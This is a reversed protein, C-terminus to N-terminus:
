LWGKKTITPKRNVMSWHEFWEGWEGRRHRYVCVKNDVSDELLRKLNSKLESYTNFSKQIVGARVDELYQGSYRYPIEVSVYPKFSRAM